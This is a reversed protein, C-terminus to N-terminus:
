GLKVVAEVDNTNKIVSCLSKLRDQHSHAGKTLSVSDGM